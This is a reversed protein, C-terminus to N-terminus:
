ANRSRVSVRSDPISNRGGKVGSVAKREGGMGRALSLLSKKKKRWKKKIKESVVNRGKVRPKATVAYGIVVLTKFAGCGNARNPVVPPVIVM